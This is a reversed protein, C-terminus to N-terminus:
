TVKSFNRMEKRNAASSPGSSCGKLRFHFKACLRCLNPTRHSTVAKMEKAVQRWLLAATLPGAFFTPTGEGNSPSLDGASLASLDACEMWAAGWRHDEFVFEIAAPYMWLAIAACLSAGTFIEGRGWPGLELRQSQFGARVTAPPEAIIGRPRLRWVLLGLLAISIPMTLQIWEFFSVQKGALRQLL